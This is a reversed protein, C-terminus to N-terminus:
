GKETGGGGGGGMGGEGPTGVVRGLPWWPPQSAEEKLRVRSGRIDATRRSRKRHCYHGWKRVISDGFMLAAARPDGRFAQLRQTRGSGVHEERCLGHQRGEERGPKCVPSTMPAPRRLPAVRCRVMIQAGFGERFPSGRSSPPPLSPFCRTRKERHPRAPRRPSRGGSCRVPAARHDPTAPGDCGWVTRAGARHSLRGPHDPCFLSM